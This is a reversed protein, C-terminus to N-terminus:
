GERRLVAVLHTRLFPIAELLTAITWCRPAVARALIPLLTVSRIPGSLSPFLRALERRTVRRVNPNAPNNVAFDYWLLAGGPALVRVIEGAVRRRVEPDLISTFLTSAILLRFSGDPWPLEAGDGVRLDAAPLALQARELRESDLEVGHLDTERVGWAILDALWGLRGCGVELCPDGPGPFVGSRKLLLAARRRRGEKMFIEGPQWAAYRDGIEADRRRDETLIRRREADFLSTEVVM